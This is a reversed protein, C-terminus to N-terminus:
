TTEYFLYEPRGDTVDFGRCALGSSLAMEFEQRIRLRHFVAAEPANRVLEAWEDPVAIRRKVPGNENCTAKSVRSKVHESNLHWEIFLRDSELAIRNTSGNLPLIEAGQYNRRYERVIGGLKEVSFFANRARAPDMAWKILTIGETLAKERQAWKLMAGIGKGEFHPAVAALHSYIAKQGEFSANMSLVFGILHVGSFAALIWGGTSRVAVFYRLPLLERESLSFVQRQLEVCAALDDLTRCERIQIPSEMRRNSADYVNIRQATIINQPLLDVKRTVQKGECGRCRNGFVGRIASFM